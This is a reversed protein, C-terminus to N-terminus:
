GGSFKITYRSYRRKQVRDSTAENICLQEKM